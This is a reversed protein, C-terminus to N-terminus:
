SEAPIVLQVAHPIIEIEPDKKEFIEGDAQLIIPNESFMRVKKCKQYHIYPMTELHRGAKYDGVYKLFELHSITRVTLFDMLGDSFEALPTAKFGGGYYKGNGLVALTVNECGLDLDVGDLQFRIPNKMSSLFSYGLALKSAAGGSVLPLKKM